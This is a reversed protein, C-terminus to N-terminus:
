HVFFCEGGRCCTVKLCKSVVNHMQGLFMVKKYGLMADHVSEICLQIYHQEQALGIYGEQLSIKIQCMM